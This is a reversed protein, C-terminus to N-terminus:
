FPTGIALLYDTSNWQFSLNKDNVQLLTALCYGPRQAVTRWQDDIFEVGSWLAQDWHSIDFQSQGNPSSSSQSIYDDVQFNPSIAFNVVTKKSLYLNPRLVKVHKIKLKAGFYNFATKATATINAGFDAQTTLAQVVKSTGGYYLKAGFEVFCGANFGKFKSWAGTITNMVYQIAAGNNDTPVNMILIDEASFHTLSWGFNTKYQSAAASIDGLIKDSINTTRDISAAQLVKSLPLLGSETLVLLDGGYKVLCKKGIPRPLAYVGVLAWNTADSPDIGKYIAVEGESTIFVAYDDSGNGGDITWNSCAVLYGGETFIPSLPFEHIAGQVANVDFYFFSLSGTMTFFLRFKFQSINSLMQPTKGVPLGTIVTDQWTAGNYLKPVDSGNVAVIYRIGANASNVSEWKGNTCPSVAPGVVGPVTVDFLGSNTAAFLRENTGDRFPMLSFVRTNGGFGTVADQQGKRLEISTPRCIFNDLVLADEPSMSALPDRSNLGGVPAPVTSQAATTQARPKGGAMPTRM